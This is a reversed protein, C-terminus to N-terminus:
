FAGFDAFWHKCPAHDVSASVGAALYAAKWLGAPLGTGGFYEVPVLVDRRDVLLNAFAQLLTPTTGATKVAVLDGPHREGPSTLAGQDQSGVAGNSLVEMGM